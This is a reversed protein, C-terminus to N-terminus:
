VYKAGKEKWFMVAEELWGEALTGNGLGWGHFDSDYTHYIYPIHNNELAKVLLKSNQIPVTTDRECQWIFCPPYHKTIQEEVSYKKQLERNNINKKGLFKQRSNKHTFEGMTLVPYALFLIGPKPLQYQKYGNAETGFIGALHGGASFGTVAYDETEVNLKEKNKIIFSIGRALDDIPNPAHAEKDYRYNLVFAHYGLENLRKAVPFAEVCSCVNSYGGGACVIVFKTKEKVPFHFLGCQKMKANKKVEVENYLPYFIRTDNRILEQMYSLGEAIQNNPWVKRAINLRCLKLFGNWLGMDPLLLHKFKQFERLKLIEYIRTEDTIMM